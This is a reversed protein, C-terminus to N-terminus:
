VLAKPPQCGHSKLHAHFRERLSAERATAKELQKDIRELRDGQADVKAARLSLIESMLTRIAEAIEEQEACQESAAAM